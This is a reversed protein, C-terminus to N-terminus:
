IARGIDQRFDGLMLVSAEYFRVFENIDLADVRFNNRELLAEEGIINYVSQLSQGLTKSSSNRRTELFRIVQSVTLTRNNNTSDGISSKVTDRDLGSLIINLNNYFQKYKPTSM